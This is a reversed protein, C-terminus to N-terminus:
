CEQVNNKRAENWGTQFFTGYDLWDEAGKAARDAVVNKAVVAAAVVDASTNGWCVWIRGALLGHPGKQSAKGSEPGRSESAYLTFLPVDPGSALGFFTRKTVRDVPGPYISIYGEIGM